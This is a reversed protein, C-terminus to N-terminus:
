TESATTITQIGVMEEEVACEKDATDKVCHHVVRNMSLFVTQDIARVLLGRTPQSRLAVTPTLLVFTLGITKGDFICTEPDVYLEPSSTM